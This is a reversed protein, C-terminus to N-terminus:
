NGVIELVVRSTNRGTAKPMNPNNWVCKLGQRQGGQDGAVEGTRAEIAAGPKENTLKGTAVPRKIDGRTVLFGELVKTVDGNWM